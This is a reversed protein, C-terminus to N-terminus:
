ACSTSFHFTRKISYGSFAAATAVAFVLHQRHFVRPIIALRSPSNCLNKTRETSYRVHHAFFSPPLSHKEIATM